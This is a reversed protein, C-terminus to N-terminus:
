GSSYVTEDRIAAQQGSSGDRALRERRYVSTFILGSGARETQALARNEPIAFATHKSLVCFNLIMTDKKSANRARPYTRPWCAYVDSIVHQAFTPANSCAFDKKSSMFSHLM